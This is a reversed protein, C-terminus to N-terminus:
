RRHHHGRHRGARRLQGRIAGGPFDANHINVYYDRPNRRLDRLLDDDVDNTCGRPDAQGEFFPVVIPGAVGRAGKHIHARTPAEIDRWRLRFCVADFRPLVQVLAKGRGDTDGPGPVEEAGLLKAKLTGGKHHGLRNHRAGVATAFALVGALVAVAALVLLRRKRSRM